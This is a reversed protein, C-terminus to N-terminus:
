KKNEKEDRKKNVWQYIGVYVGIFVMECIMAAILYSIGELAFISPFMAIIIIDVWVWSRHSASRGGSVWPFFEDVGEYLDVFDRINFPIMLLVFFLWLLFRGLVRLKIM